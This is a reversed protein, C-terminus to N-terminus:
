RRSGAPRRRDAARISPEFTPRPRRLPGAHDHIVPRAREPPSGGSRAVDGTRGVALGVNLGTTVAIGDDGEAVAVDLVREALEELLCALRDLQEAAGVELRLEAVPDRRDGRRLGGGPGGWGMAVGPICAADGTGAVPRIPAPLRHIPGVKAARGSGEQQDLGYGLARQRLSAHGRHRHRAQRRGGGFTRIGFGPRSARMGGPM